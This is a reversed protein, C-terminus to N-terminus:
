PYDCAYDMFQPPAGSRAVSVEEVNEEAVMENWMTLSSCGFLQYLRRLRCMRALLSYSLDVNFLREVGAVRAPSRVGDAQCPQPNCPPPRYTSGIMIQRSLTRLRGIGHTQYFALTKHGILWWADHDVDNVIWVMWAWMLVVEATNPCQLEELRKIAAIIGAPTHLIGLWTAKHSMIRLATSRGEETSIIDECSTFNLHRLHHKWLDSSAFVILNVAADMPEYEDTLQHLPPLDPTFQFPDGVAQLLRARNRDLVNGMKTSFWRSFIKLAARRSKLPHTPLLTSILIPLVTPVLNDYVDGISVIRLAIAAPALPLDTAYFEESLQLFGLLPPIWADRIHFASKSFQFQYNIHKWALEVVEGALRYQWPVAYKSNLIDTIWSFCLEGIPAVQSPHFHSLAPLISYPANYGGETGERIVTRLRDHLFHIATEM